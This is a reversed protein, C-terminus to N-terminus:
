KKKKKIQAVERREFKPKMKKGDTGKPAAKVM